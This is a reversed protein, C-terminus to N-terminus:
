WQAYADFYTRFKGRFKLRRADAKLDAIAEQLTAREIPLMGGYRHANSCRGADEVEAIYTGYKTRYWRVDMTNKAFMPDNKFLDAVQAPTGSMIVYLRSM